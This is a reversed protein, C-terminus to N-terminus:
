IFEWRPAEQTTLETAARILATQKEEEDMEPKAFSRFKEELRALDYNESTFDKQVKALVQDVGAPAAFVGAISKRTARLKSRQSRYLIYSKSQAFYGMQMLTEEVLDQIQEVQVPPSLALVKSEVAGTITTLETKQLPTDTSAFAKGIAASIKEPRYSEPQGSRKIIEM